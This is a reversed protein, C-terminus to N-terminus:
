PISKIALFLSFHNNEFALFGYKEYFNKAEIDIADVIVAFCGVNESIEKIRNLADKLLFAGYGQKQFKDAVCLKALRIVPIPYRPLKKKYHEPLIDVSVDSTAITYYGIVNNNDSFHLVWTTGIKKNQNQSAYRKIYTNLQNKSSYFSAVDFQSSFKSIEINQFNQCM